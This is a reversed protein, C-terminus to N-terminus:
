AMILCISVPLLFGDLGCQVGTEIKVVVGAMAEGRKKRGLTAEALSPVM